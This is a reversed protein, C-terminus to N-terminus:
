GKINGKRDVWYCNGDDYKKCFIIEGNRVNTAQTGDESIEYAMPHLPGCQDCILTEGAFAPLGSTPNEQEHGSGVTYKLLDDGLMQSLYKMLEPTQASLPIVVEGPTVHAVMSDQAHHQGNIGMENAVMGEAALAEQSPQRALVEFGQQIMAVYEPDRQKWYRPDEMLNRLRKEGPTTGFSKM